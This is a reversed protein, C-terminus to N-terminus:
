TGSASSAAAVAEIRRTCDPHDNWSPQRRLREIERRITPRRSGDADRRHLIEVIRTSAHWYAREGRTEAPTREAIGRFLAFAGADDGVRLRAEAQAVERWVPWPATAPWADHTRREQPAALLAMAARAALPGDLTTPTGARAARVVDIGADAAAPAVPFAEHIGHRERLTERLAGEAAAALAAEDLAGSAALARAEDGRGAALLARLRLRELVSVPAATALLDLAAEPDGGRLALWAGAAGPEAPDLLPRLHEAAADLTSAQDADTRLAADLLRTVIAERVVTAVAPSRQADIVALAAAARAAVPLLAALEEPGADIRALGDLM